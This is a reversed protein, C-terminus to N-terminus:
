CCCCCCCCCCACADRSGTCLDLGSGLRGGRRSSSGSVRCHSTRSSCTHTNRYTQTHTTDVVDVLHGLSMATAQARAAPTHTHTHTQTHTHTDVVNVLHDLSAATALARAAPTQTLCQTCKYMQIKHYLCLSVSALKTCIHTHTFKHTLRHAHM